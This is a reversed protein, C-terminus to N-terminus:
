RYEDDTEVILSQEMADYEDVEPSDSPSPMPSPAEDLPRSQEAVDAEPAEADETAPQYKEDLEDEPDREPGTM